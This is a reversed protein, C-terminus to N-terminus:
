GARVVRVTSVARKGVEGGILYADSGVVVVASDSVPASAAVAAIKGSPVDIRTVDALTGRAPDSGGLVYVSGGLTVASAHGLANPLRGIETVRGSGPDFVDVASTAAGAGDIGGAIVLKGGSAAVAAYRLGAPLKGALRFTRGDTTAYIETRASHDDYGGVLYVTGGITASSVDSLPHDLHAIVSGRGTGLDFEQVSSSSHAAGGGFVLLRNGLMAGAADHFPEPVAGVRTLKGSAPDMRFVGSTSSGAADLGGAIVVSGSSAVAVERQVPAALAYGAPAVSAGGAAPLTATSKGPTLLLNRIAPIRQADATKLIDLGDPTNLYGPSSGARDTHGYQWVIRKTKISVIVVRHRYDDNIAVLGPAIEEALSPHDLEGPGSSPGYRWLTRGQRDMIVAHGPRAYDALLIRNPSLLQPDSPYSVPAQVAWRLKGDPGVEDVWSGAIESILTGGDALPTAGNIPGLYRPPDHRCVRTTGYQKIVRHAQDIFLVRCNYADAVTVIGSKLLYADDPTNLYGPASGKVNVHGYRWVVRGGPFTVIQITQQEEQNSIIRDLKPGFFTDDDFHFPMAPTVGPKPYEWFIHRASDVLLMRNNGRDAILMYGPIPGPPHLQPVAPKAAGAKKATGPKTGGGGSAWVAVAGGLVALV